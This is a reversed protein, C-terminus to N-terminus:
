KSSSIEIINTLIKAKLTIIYPTSKFKLTIFHKREECMANTVMQM